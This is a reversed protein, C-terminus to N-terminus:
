DVAEKYREDFQEKTIQPSDLFDRSSAQRDFKEAKVSYSWTGNKITTREIITHDFNEDLRGYIETNREDGLVTSYCYPFQVRHMNLFEVTNDFIEQTRGQIEGKNDQTFARRMSDEYYETILAKGKFLRLVTEAIVSQGQSTKYPVGFETTLQELLNKVEGLKSAAEIASKDLVCGAWSIAEAKLHADVLASGYIMNLMYQGGRQNKTAFPKFWIDGYVICGRSPFDQLVNFSNFKFCVLMLEEFISLDVEDAWFIVTDSFTLCNLRSQSIDSILHGPRSEIQPRDLALAMEINRAFHDTRRNLHEPSNNEIFKKYGLLDFYALFTAM